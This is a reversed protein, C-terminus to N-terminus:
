DPQSASRTLAPLTRRSSASSDTLSTLSNRIISLPTPQHHADRALDAADQHIGAQARLLVPVGRALAALRRDVDQELASGHGLLAQELHEARGGAERRHVEHADLGVRLGDLGQRLLQARFVA